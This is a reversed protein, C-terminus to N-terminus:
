SIFDANILNIDYPTIGQTVSFITDAEEKSNVREGRSKTHLEFLEYLTLRNKSHIIAELKEEISAINSEVNNGGWHTRSSTPTDVWIAKRTVLDFMIPIINKCNTKVDIKQEVTAANFVENSNPESRTMWGAYCVEHESFRPGSFVLVNMALYRAGRKVAADITVDIFECAGNRASTIDGSHYAKFGDSKLNTYSVYEILNFNEDHFSASLDIDQGKWYIFFRLTSKDGIPLRTGRAVNFLGESASRQQTPLPCDMLELDIWVKGLSDLKAFREVLSKQITMILSQRIAGDLFEAINDIVVAKQVMGKPFIVRKGNLSNRYNLHGLLQTLNRTPIKDVINSFEKVIFNQESSSAIRLVKDIRRGFEGPRTVLLKVLEDINKKEIYYEVHGYFSELSKNNRAKSAIDYVKKSYDGVHLNHFLKVWKRRHRGVDEENIVRELAQVLVRRISRPLSVFKTNAALSIDGESLYTVVRLVDSTTNILQSIDKKQKLLLAAVVCKNENFPIVEPYKLETEDSHEIFWEIISKDEDSLSDNSKLLTTFVNKLDSESALDIQRFKVSEFKFQRPLKEYAPKWEGFSWYHMLANLYLEAFDAEIVQVPFNPYMPRFVVDDGKINKLISIIENCLRVLEDHKLLQAAKFLAESMVFGLRMMEANLTSVLVQNTALHEENFQINEDFSLVLADLKKISIKNKTLKM